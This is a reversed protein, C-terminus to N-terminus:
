SLNSSSVELTSTMGALSNTDMSSLCPCVVLPFGDGTGSLILMVTIQKLIPGIFVCCSPIVSNVYPRCLVAFKALATDDAVHKSLYLYHTRLM